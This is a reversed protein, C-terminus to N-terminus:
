SVTLNAGFESTEPATTGVPTTATATVLDGQHLAGATVTLSWQGNGAAIARGLLRAGEGHGSDGADAKALFVEVTCGPCATGSVATATAASLVPCPVYDNPGPPPTSCNVVGVPALDLGLGANASTSNGQVVVHTGTDSSSSGIAIGAGGNGAVVNAASAVTGGVIDGSAGNAVTIGAHANGLVPQGSANLGVRNGSVVIGTGGGTGGVDIGDGGNAGVVNSTIHDGSSPSCGHEDCVGDVVIGARANGLAATANRNTGVVNRSVTSDLAAILDIGVGLNGSVLNGATATTGGITNNAGGGGNPAQMCFGVGQFLFPRSGIGDVKNPIAKTGTADTGVLNGQVVNEGAGVYIGDGRNGSVLNGQGATSGGITSGGGCIVLGDTGNIPQGLFIASPDFGNGLAASGSVDTGIKNGQVIANTSSLVLGTDGNGSIVNGRVVNADAQIDAGHSHNELVATGTADTGILNRILSVGTGGTLVGDGGSGSIVNGAVTVNAALVVLGTAANPVAERGSASTGILNRQVVTGDGLEVYAGFGECDGLTCQENGSLLNTSAPDTGGVIAASASSGTVDVGAFENAAATVGDPRVGLFNGAAVDNSGRLEIGSGGTQLGPIPGCSFCTIFGTISLGRVTDGSGTVVIGSTGEPALSGDLAVSIRANTGGSLPLTNPSSGAQTYGDIVSGTAKLPPLASAVRITCVTPTGACGADSGPIAFAITAASGAQNAAAIACRLSLASPTCPTPLDAATTVTITTTPVALAARAPVVGVVAASLGVTVVATSRIWARFSMM